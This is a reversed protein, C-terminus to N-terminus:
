CRCLLAHRDHGGPSRGTGAYVPFGHCGGAVTDFKQRGGFSLSARRFPGLASIGVDYNGVFDDHRRLVQVEACAAARHVHPVSPLKACIGM